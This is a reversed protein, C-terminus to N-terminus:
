RAAARREALRERLRKAWFVFAEDADSWKGIGGRIAKTGWREDVAAALRRGSLSDTLEAEVGAKGVLVATGTALGGLTAV